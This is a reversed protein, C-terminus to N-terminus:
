PSPSGEEVLSIDVMLDAAIKELGNRLDDLAVGAPVQLVASATFLPGGSMPTTTLQTSLEEINVRRAALVQTVQRVIGPRDHGTLDLRIRRAAAPGRPEASSREIVLHWGQAELRRLDALVEDARRAPVEVRLIGAFQGALQAMRSELWNGGHAEIVKSVAEVLGPRDAAMITMILHVNM